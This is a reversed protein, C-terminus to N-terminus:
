KLLPFAALTDNGCLYLSSQSIHYNTPTGAPTAWWGLLTGHKANLALVGTQGRGLFQSTFVYVENNAAAAMTGTVHPVVWREEGTRVDLAAVFVGRWATTASAFYALGRYATLFTIPSTTRSWLLAGHAGNYAWVFGNQTVFAAGSMFAVAAGPSPAASNWLLSGNAASFVLTGAAVVVGGPVGSDESSAVALPYNQFGYTVSSNWLLKCTAADLALLLDDSELFAFVTTGDPALAYPADVYAPLACQNGSLPNFLWPVGNTTIVVLGSAASALIQSCGISSSGNKSWLLAGTSISVGMAYTGVLYDGVGCILVLDVTPFVVAGTPQGVTPAILTATGHARSVYYAGDALVLIHTSNLSLIQTPVAYEPDALPRSWRFKSAPAAPEPTGQATPTGVCAVIVALLACTAVLTCRM